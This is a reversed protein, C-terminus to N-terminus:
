ISHGIVMDGDKRQGIDGHDRTGVENTESTLLKRPLQRMNPANEDFDRIDVRFALKWSM